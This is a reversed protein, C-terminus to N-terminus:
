GCWCAGGLTISVAMAALSETWLWMTVMVATFILHLVAGIVAVNKGRRETVM